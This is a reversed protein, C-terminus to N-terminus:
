CLGFCILHGFGFSGFFRLLFFIRFVFSLKIKGTFSQGAIETRPSRSGNINLSFEVIFLDNPSSITQAVPVSGAVLFKNASNVFRQRFFPSERRFRHVTWCSLIDPFIGHHALDFFTKLFTKDSMESRSERIIRGNFRRGAVSQDFFIPSVVPSGIREESCLQAVRPGCRGVTKLVVAIVTLPDICETESDGVPLLM